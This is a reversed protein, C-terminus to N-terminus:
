LCRFEYGRIVAFVRIATSSFVKGEGVEPSLGRLLIKGFPFIRARDDIAQDGVTVCVKNGNVECVPVHKEVAADTTGPVIEKMPQGCCMVPVGSASIMSVVNGCQNCQYVKM